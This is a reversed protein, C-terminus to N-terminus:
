FLPGPPLPYPNTVFVTRTMADLSSALSQAAQGSAGVRTAAMKAIGAAPVIATAIGGASTQVPPSLWFAQIARGVAQAASPAPLRSRMLNRLEFEFLRYEGGKLIVPSGPPAQATQAYAQYAQAIRSAVRGIDEIRQDFVMQIQNTLSAVNLAM